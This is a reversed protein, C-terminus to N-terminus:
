INANLIEASTRLPLMKKFNLINPAVHSIGYNVEEIQM